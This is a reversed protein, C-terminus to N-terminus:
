GPDGASSVLASASQQDQGRGFEVLWALLSNLVASRASRDALSESQAKLWRLSDATAQRLAPDKSSAAMRRLDQMARGASLRAIGALVDATDSDSDQVALRHLLHAAAPSAAEAAAVLDGESTLAEFAERRVADGFLTAHLISGFEVPHSIAMRLAEDEATVREVEGPARRQSADDAVPATVASSRSTAVRRLHEANVRCRDAIEVLYPDRVMPDPHENVVAVAHEAARARSEITSMDAKALARELRFALFPRANDSINRLADPDERALDGPDLGSPLDAVLIQLDLSREWAYVRGAAAAGAADADFALILRNASFHKLLRMHEETLATGCTAVARNLGAQACGIVDTYGECVVAEGKSVIEARNEHLGYLVRRKDYVVADSSTNLYKPGEAAPLVRGGFGVINGHEDPIPFLLRNRFFDQQRQTSNVFGLGSDRLDGEPLDLHRALLDWHDPAWGLRWRRVLEGDYGRSRLYSRAPGADAAELLRRHYFDVAKSVSELLRRRRSREAGEELRTYRLRIGARAALMEVAGSFDLGEIEQVFTIVDGSRLCGFCYYVGKEASVSLSPTREGHLPCRAVWQRGSRKIDAHEGIVAVIDTASRVKAIDEAVIGMVASGLM